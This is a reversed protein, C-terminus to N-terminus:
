IIYMGNNMIFNGLREVAPSQLMQSQSRSKFHSKPTSEMSHASFMKKKEKNTLSIETM